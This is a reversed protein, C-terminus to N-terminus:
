AFRRYVMVGGVAATILLAGALIYSVTDVPAKPVLPLCLDTRGPNQKLCVLYKDAVDTYAPPPGGPWRIRDALAKAVVYIGVAVIGVLVVAAPTVLAAAAAAAAPLAGLGASTGGPCDGITFSLPAVPAPYPNTATPTLEKTVKGAADYLKQTTAIGKGNLQAFVERAVRLYASVDRNHRDRVACPISLRQQRYTDAIRYGSRSLAYHWAQLRALADAVTVEGAPWANTAM